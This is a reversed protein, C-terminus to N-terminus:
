HSGQNLGQVVPVKFFNSGERPRWEGMQLIYPWQKLPRTPILCRINLHKPVQLTEIWQALENYWM